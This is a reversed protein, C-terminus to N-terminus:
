PNTKIKNLSDLKEFYEDAQKDMERVAEEERRMRYELLM